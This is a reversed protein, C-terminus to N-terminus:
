RPDSKNRRNSTELLKKRLFKHPNLDADKKKEERYELFDDIGLRRGTAGYFELLEKLKVTPAKADRERLVQIGEDAEANRRTALVKKFEKKEAVSSIKLLKEWTDSSMEKLQEQIFDEVKMKSLTHKIKKSKKLFLHFAEASYRIAEFGPLIKAFDEPQVAEVIKLVEDGAIYGYAGLLRWDRNHIALLRGKEKTEDALIEERTAKLYQFLSRSDGTKQYNKFLADYLFQGEDNRERLIEPHLGSLGGLNVRPNSLISLLGRNIREEEKTEDLFKVGTPTNESVFKPSQDFLIDAVPRKDDPHEVFYRLLKQTVKIAENNQETKEQMKGSFVDLVGGHASLDNDMPEIKNLTLIEEEKRIPMLMCPQKIGNYHIQVHLNDADLLGDDAFKYDNQAIIHFHKAGLSQKLPRRSSFHMMRLNGMLEQEQGPYFEALKESMMQELRFSVMGGHCHSVLTINQLNKRIEPISRKEGKEDAILPLLFADFFPKWYDKLGAVGKSQVEEDGFFKNEGVEYIISDRHKSSDRFTYGLGYLHPMEEPKMGAALLMLEVVKCHGNIEEPAKASADGPLFLVSKKGLFVESWEPKHGTGTAYIIKFGYPAESKKVREGLTFSNKQGIM